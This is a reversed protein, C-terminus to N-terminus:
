AGPLLEITLCCWSPWENRVHGSVHRIEKPKRSAPTALPRVLLGSSRQAVAYSMPRRLVHLSYVSIRSAPPRVSIDGGLVAFDVDSLSRM